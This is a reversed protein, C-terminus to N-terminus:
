DNTLTTTSGSGVGSVSTMLCSHRFPMATWWPADYMCLSWSFCFSHSYFGVMGTWMWDLVTCNNLRTLSMFFLTCMCCSLADLLNAQMTKTCTPLIHEETETVLKNLNELLRYERFGRKEQLAFYERPNFALLLNAHAEVAVCMCVCYSMM